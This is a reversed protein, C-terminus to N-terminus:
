SHDRHRLPLHQFFAERGTSQADHRSTKRNMTETPEHNRDICPETRGREASRIM